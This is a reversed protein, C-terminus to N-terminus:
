LYRRVMARMTAPDFPKEIRPNAVTDLFQRASPTFVGGTLVVIREAQDPAVRQLNRYLDMGTMDPMMLDCLIVDFREGRAFMELAERARTLALVEHESRLLRQISKGVSIEDDVVLVRGRRGGKASPMPSPAADDVLASPSAPLTIRFVTGANARSEVAIEGGVGTIINHCISLGLGTGVGIPKTTFFPDFIRGIIDPRIGSGSDRVEVIARGLDDTRATVRIENEDVRGEPIAQAANVLLNLFVQGLRGANAFVPPTKGYEKFLRARYKIENFAMNISSEIIPRLEVTALQEEGGRSFTKLDRVVNKVRGAGERAEALAQQLEGLSAGPSRLALEKLEEDLFALAATVYALPNNIEHAVGAALMGVSALRDSQMLQAQMSNIRAEAEKRTSVDQCFAMFRHDATQVARLSVWVVRGDGRRFRWEGEMEGGDVLTAFQRMVLAHDEEVVVDLFSKSFLAASDYGLLELAAPNCDVYRGGTEFVLLAQPAQEIYSRFKAESRCLAEEARKRETIDLIFAVSKRREPELLVWGVQVPVTTGDPRLYRKEYPKCRGTEAAEAMAAEDLRLDEPPTIDVWSVKGALVDERTRGVIRAMADNCDYVRGDVDGFQIGIVDSEVFARLRSESQRIEDQARRWDSINRTICLLVSEGNLVIVRASVLCPLLRGDKARLRVQMNEVYGDEKVKEVLRAREGRDVWLNIDVSSRGIVEAESWGSTKLFSDNVAIFGGDNVRTITMWDPSTQFALRFREESERLAQEARKSDTVDNVYGHWVISGDPERTPMSRGDIWRLGKAPHLYRYTDQWRTLNRAAEELGANVRRVDDPHVNAAWPAADHALVQQSIGFLDEVAPTTFPMCASGDPTLRFSHIVGPVSAAIKALLDKAALEERLAEEARKRETIDRVVSVLTQRGDVVAGQSSVEVPFASGDKRRHVTEFRTGDIGAASRDPAPVGRTSSERLDDISLLRLEDRSYGYTACAAANADLIRGDDRRVFLMVDSSHDALLRYRRLTEDARTRETLDRVVSLALTRGENEFLRSNMEVPISRGDKALLHKEHILSGNGRMEAADRSVHQMDEPSAIDFPTMRSMEDATYGLLRCVAANAALFSGSTGTTTFEHVLIGDSSMEFLLEHMSKANM